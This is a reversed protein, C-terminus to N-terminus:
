GGGENGPEGGFMRGGGGGDRFMGGGGDRFMGGGGGEPEGGGGFMRRHQNFQAKHFQLQQELLEMRKITDALVKNSEIERQHNQELIQIERRHSEKLHENERERMKSDILTVYYKESEKKRMEEEEKQEKKEKQRIEEQRKQEASTSLQIALQLQLNFNDRAGDQDWNRDRVQYRVVKSDNLRMDIWNVYDMSPNTATYERTLEAVQLMKEASFKNFDVMRTM